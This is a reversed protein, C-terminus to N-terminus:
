GAPRLVILQGVHPKKSGPVSATRAGTGGAAYAPSAAIELTVPPRTTSAFRREATETMGAPPQIDTALAVSYVGVVLRNPGLTTVGPATISPGVGGMGSSAEVPTATDVGSFSQIVASASHNGVMKWTHSAPESATTVRVYVAQNVFGPQDTRRILTWGSPTTIAVNDGRTSVSALLVQGPATGPAAVTLTNTYMAASTSGLHRIGSEPAPTTVSVATPVSPNGALDVAVVSYRYSTAAAVASDTFGTGQATGLEVGDRLVKYGAVGIDDTAPSWRLEVRTPSTAYATLDTVASPPTGDDNTATPGTRREVEVMHFTTDDGTVSVVLDATAELGGTIAGAPVDATVRKWRGSGTKTFTRRDGTGTGWALSINGTGQDLYTLAIQSGYALSRNFEPAVRLYIKGKGSALDTRRAFRGFRQDAPGIVSTGGASDVAVTTADAGPTGDGNLQTLFMGYNDDTADPGGRFAAWAGPAAEPRHGFGAHKNSFDFAARYEASDPAGATAGRLDDAYTAVYSVGRGLDMLQRWYAWSLQHNPSPVKSEYYGRTLGRKVWDNYLQNAKPLTNDPDANTGFIWAKDQGLLETRLAPDPNVSLFLSSRLIPRIDPMLANYTLRMSTEYAANAKAVTWDALCASTPAAGADTLLYPETGVLNPSARVGLVASRYPSSRLKAALAQLMEQMLTPYTPNWYQPIDFTENKRAYSGCRAIGQDYIWAPKRDSNVQVTTPKGAQHYFALEEDLDNWAFVGRTPEIRAWDLRIQGGRVYPMEAAEADSGWILYVGTAATAGESSTADSATASAARPTLAVSSAVTMLSLIM